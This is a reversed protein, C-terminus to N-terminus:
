GDRGSAKGECGEPVLIMSSGLLTDVPRQLVDTVSKLFVVSIRGLGSRECRYEAIAFGNVVSLKAEHARVTKTCDGAEQIRVKMVEKDFPVPYFMVLLSSLCGDGVDAAKGYLVGAM